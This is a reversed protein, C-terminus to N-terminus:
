SKISQEKSPILYGTPKRGGSASEDCDWVLIDDGDSAAPWFGYVGRATLLKESEIRDLMRQICRRM